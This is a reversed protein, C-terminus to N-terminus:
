RFRQIATSRDPVTTRYVGTAADYLYFTNPQVRDATITTRDLHYASHLGSWDSKGAISITKWTNGGDLTYAPANNGSPAWIINSPTSAAISGGVSNLAWSPLSAFKQWTKGGDASYGSDDTGWWDSIGVVFKSNTSAYDVSWGMSFQGGSYASSYTDLDSKEFFPRDWSAFVPNGGAPAIIDNAVLQEIGTSFSNWVVTETWVMKSPMDTQWVGVGAAQWLKGPVLSDFVIGGSGM